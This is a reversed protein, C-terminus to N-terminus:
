EDGRGELIHNVTRKALEVNAGNLPRWWSQGDWNFKEEKLIGSLNTV